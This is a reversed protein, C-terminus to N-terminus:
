VAGLLYAWGEGLTILSAMILSIFVPLEGTNSESSTKKAKVFGTCAAKSLILSTPAEYAVAEGWIEELAETNAWEPKEDSM